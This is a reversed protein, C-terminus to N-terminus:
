HHEIEVQGFDLEVPTKRGLIGVEVKLKQKDMNVEKIVGSFTNFPGEIVKVPDGIQFETEITAIDKREELRGIIRQVEDPRLPQPETKRGVFSVVGQLNSVTDFVKKSMQAKVMIYGPLFNKVRTRKKGNRVEYVTEEPIVIEAIEDAIGLRDSEREILDKIKQEHSTFTRLAYWKFELVEEEENRSNIRNFDEKDLFIDAM